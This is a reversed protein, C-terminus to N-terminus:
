DKFVALRNKLYSKIDETDLLNAIFSWNWDVLIFSGLNNISKFMNMAIVIDNEKAIDLTLWIHEIIGNKPQCFLVVNEDNGYATISNCLKRYSSYGTYVEDYKFLVESICSELASVTIGNDYTYVINESRLFVESYGVDSRHEDAFSNIDKAQNNCHIKNEQPVIEIQTFDDEHFYISRM